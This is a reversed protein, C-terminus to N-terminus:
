LLVTIKFNIRFFTSESFVEAYHKMLCNIQWTTAWSSVPWALRLWAITRPVDYFEKIQDLDEDMTMATTLAGYPSTLLNLMPILRSAAEPSSRASHRRFILRLSILGFSGSNDKNILTLLHM